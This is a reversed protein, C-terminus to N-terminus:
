AAGHYLELRKLRRLQCNSHRQRINKCTLNLTGLPLRRTARQNPPVGWVYQSGRYCDTREDMRWTQVGHM